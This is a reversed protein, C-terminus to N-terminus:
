GAVYFVTLGITGGQAGAPATAVKVGISRNQTSQGIRYASKLTPRAVGGAQGVNTGDLIIDDCTRAQDRDGFEGSMLGVDFTLATGTDLDDTDLIFERPVCGAPLPAIEFINNAVLMAATVAISYRKAVVEGASAPFPINDIGKAASSQIIM